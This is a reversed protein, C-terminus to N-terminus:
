PPVRCWARSELAPHRWASPWHRMTSATMVFREILGVHARDHEVTSVHGLPTRQLLLEIMLREMVGEGTQRVAGQEEVPEGMGHVPAVTAEVRHGHQEQIEVVELRDVVTESMWDAVLQQDGHGFSNADAVRGPSVTARNPPSSNATSTSDPVIGSAASTTASRMVSDKVGVNRTRALSTAIRALMPM